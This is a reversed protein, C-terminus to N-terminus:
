TDKEKGTEPAAPTDHVPCPREDHMGDPGRTCRPDPAAPPAASLAARAQWAAWAIRVEADRYKLNTDVNFKEPHWVTMAWAEFREREAIGPVAAPEDPYSVINGEHDRTM